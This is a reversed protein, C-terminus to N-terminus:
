EEEDVVEAGSPLRPLVFRVVDRRAGSHPFTVRLSTFRDWLGPNAATGFSAGAPDHRFRTVESWAVIHAGFLSRAEIGADDFTYETRLLFGRFLVATGCAAAFGAWRSGFVETAGVAVTLTAAALFALSWPHRRAPHDHWSLEPVARADAFPDRERFATAVPEGSAPLDTVEGADVASRERCCRRQGGGRITM